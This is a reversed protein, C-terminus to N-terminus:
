FLCVNVNTCNFNSTTSCSEVYNTCVNNSCDSSNTPPPCTGNVPENFSLQGGRISMFGASVFKNSEVFLKIGQRKSENSLNPM